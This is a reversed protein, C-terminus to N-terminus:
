IKSRREFLNSIRLLCEKFSLKIYSFVDKFLNIIEYDDYVLKDEKIYKLRKVEERFLIINYFYISSIIFSLIYSLLIFFFIVYNGLFFSIIFFFGFFLLILSNLLIIFKYDEKKNDYYNIKEDIEKNHVNIIEMAKVKNLINNEVIKYDGNSNYIKLNNDEEEFKVIYKKFKHNLFNIKKLKIRKLITNFINRIEKIM